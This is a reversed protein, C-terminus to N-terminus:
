KEDIKVVSITVNSDETLSIAPADNERGWSENNLNGVPYMKITVKQKGSKLIQNIEIPTILNSIEFDDFSFVDNVKVEIICNQKNIRFYYIPESDFHKIQTNIKEVFNKETINKTEPFIYKNIDYSIEQKKTEVKKEQSCALFAIGLFLFYFKKM